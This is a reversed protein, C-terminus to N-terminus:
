NSGRLTSSRLKNSTALTYNFDDSFLAKAMQLNPVAAFAIKDSTTASASYIPAKNQERCVNVIVNGFTAEEMEAASNM